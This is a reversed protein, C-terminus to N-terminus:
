LDNTMLHKIYSLRLREREREREREPV